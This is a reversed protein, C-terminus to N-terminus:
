AELVNIGPDAVLKEVFETLQLKKQKAFGVCYTISSPLTVHWKAIAFVYTM